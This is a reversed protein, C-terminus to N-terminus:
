KLIVEVREKIIKFRKFWRKKKKYRYIILKM